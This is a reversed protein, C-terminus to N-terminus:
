KCFSRIARKYRWSVSHGSRVTVHCPTFHSQTYYDSCPVPHSCVDSSLLVYTVRCLVDQPQQSPRLSGQYGPTVLEPDESHLTRPFRLRRCLRPSVRGWPRESPQLRHIVHNTDRYSFIRLYHFFQSTAEDPPLAFLASLLLDITANIYISKYINIPHIGSPM